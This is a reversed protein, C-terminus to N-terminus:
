ADYAQWIREKELVHGSVGREGAGDVGELCVSGGELDEGAGGVIGAEVAEVALDRRRDEVM